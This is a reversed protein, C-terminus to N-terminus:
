SELVMRVILALITDVVWMFISLLVVMSLVVITTSTTEKRTPWVIKRMELQVSLMFQKFQAIRGIEDEGVM